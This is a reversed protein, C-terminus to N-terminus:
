LLGTFGLSLLMLMGTGCQCHYGRRHDSGGKIIKSDEGQIRFFQSWRASERFKEWFVSIHCCYHVDKTSWQNIVKLNFISYQYVLKM